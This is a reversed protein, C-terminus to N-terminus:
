YLSGRCLPCGPNGHSASVLLCGRHFSHGCCAAVVIDALDMASFCIPCDNEDARPRAFNLTYRSAYANVIDVEDQAMLEEMIREEAEEIEYLETLLTPPHHVEDWGHASFANAWGEWDGENYGAPYDDADFISMDLGSFFEELSEEIADM